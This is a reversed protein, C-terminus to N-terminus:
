ETVGAKERPNRWQLVRMESIPVPEASLWLVLRYGDTFWPDGTLNGRPQDISVEGVGGTYGFAELTQAYALNELLYERTDDVDPDIKHTTITKTTFRVGIDRSIQGLLVPEGNCTVPALWLRLHNRYHINNRIKQLAIDQARGTTAVRAPPAGSTTPPSADPTSTGGSCGQTTLACRTPTQRPLQHM